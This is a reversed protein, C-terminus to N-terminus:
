PADADIAPVVSQRRLYDQLVSDWLDRASVIDDVVERLAGRGGATGTVWEAAELIRPHADAVAIGVGVHRMVALDVLDDGLFAVREAELGLRSQLEMCVGVKDFAGQRLELVPLESFRRAVAASERATVVAVHLDIVSAIYMASGDRVHFVKAECEAGAYMISGDTLVGDVDTILLQLERLRDEYEQKTLRLM